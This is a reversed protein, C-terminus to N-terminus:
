RYYLVLDDNTSASRLGVGQAINGYLVHLLAKILPYINYNYMKKGYLHLLQAM